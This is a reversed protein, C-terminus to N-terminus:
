LENFHEDVIKGHYHQPPVDSINLNLGAGIAPGIEICLDGPIAMQIYGEIEPFNAKITWRKGDKNFFIQRIM